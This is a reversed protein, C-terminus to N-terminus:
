YTESYVLSELLTTDKLRANIDVGFFAEVPALLEPNNEMVETLYGVVVALGKRTMKGLPKRCNGAPMGLVQMATKVALPNRALCKVEGFPTEEMTVVSTLKFLPKLATHLTEAEAVKGAAVLEVLRTTPGPVINSAVSIVGSAAIGADTMMKVLLADDGSFIDFDPGCVERTRKMNDLNGTAEKVATVNPCEQKLIAIDEPLMQTGTRGPIIYPIVTIEPFTKAVPTIYEKRIELSSPGNYYPDVLLVADVGAEVAHRTASLAENTNNSGTGAICFCKGKTQKSITEILSNHEDWALTPSEGTTGVALIGTINNEIQFRCLKDLGEYDVLDNRFPTVLATYCGKKM